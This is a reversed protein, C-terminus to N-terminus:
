VRMQKLVLKRFNRFGIKKEMKKVFPMLDKTACNNSLSIVCGPRVRDL